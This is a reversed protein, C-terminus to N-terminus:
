NVSPAAQVDGTRSLSEAASVPRPTVNLIDGPELLDGDGLRLVETRGNARRTVVFDPQAAANAQATSFAPARVEAQYILAQDTAIKEITTALKSRVETAEQLAENRRANTLELIDQSAKTIQQQAQLTAVQVDLRNSQFQATNQELELQRPLVVIGKTVLGSIQSLEKQVLDLQRAATADKTSM